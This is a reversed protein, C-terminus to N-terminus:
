TIIVRTGATDSKLSGINDRQKDETTKQARLQAAVNCFKSKTEDKFEDVEHKQNNM